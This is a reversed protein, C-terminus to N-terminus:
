DPNGSPTETGTWEPKSETPARVRIAKRNSLSQQHQNYQEVQNLVQCYISSNVSCPSLHRFGKCGSEESLLGEFSLPLCQCNLAAGSGVEKDVKHLTPSMHEGATLRIRNSRLKLGVM